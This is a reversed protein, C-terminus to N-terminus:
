SIITSQPLPTSKSIPFLKSLLCPQFQPFFTFPWGDVLVDDWSILFLIFNKISLLYCLLPKAIDVTSRRMYHLHWIKLYSHLSYWVYHSIAADPLSSIEKQYWQWDAGEASSNMQRDTFNIKGEYQDENVFLWGNMMNVDRASWM